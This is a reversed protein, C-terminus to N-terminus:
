QGYIYYNAAYEVTFEKNLGECTKPPSGGATDVRYVGTFRGITGNTASLYLWAVAGNRGQIATEPAELDADKKVKAIGLQRQPTTDLNFVPVKGEFFHHGILNLNAPAMPSSEDSPLRMRYAIAPLLEIMDPFNAAYCTANYLRAVAGVAVPESDATSTACTYNQTGRGLAVYLPRQGDTPTPLGSAFSPLTITSPNCSLSNDFIDEVRSIHRSVRGLYEAVDDSFDYLNGFVPAASVTSAALCSAIFLLSHM